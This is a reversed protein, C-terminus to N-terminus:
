PNQTYLPTQIHKCWHLPEQWETYNSSAGATRRQAQLMLNDHVTCCHDHVATIYEM